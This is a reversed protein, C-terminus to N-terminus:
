LETASEFELKLFLISFSPANTVIGFIDAKQCINM